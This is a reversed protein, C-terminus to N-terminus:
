LQDAFLKAIYDSWGPKAETWEKSQAFDAGFVGAVAPHFAIGAM